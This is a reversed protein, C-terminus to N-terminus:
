ENNTRAIVAITNVTYATKERGFRYLHNGVWILCDILPQYPLTGNDNIVPIKEPPVHNDLFEICDLALQGHKALLKMDRDGLDRLYKNVGLQMHYHGRPDLPEKSWITFDSDIYFQDRNMQTQHNYFIFGVATTLENFITEPSAAIYDYILPNIYLGISQLEKLNVIKTPETVDVSFLVQM